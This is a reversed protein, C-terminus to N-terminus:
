KYGRQEKMEIVKRISALEVNSVGLQRIADKFKSEYYPTFSMQGKELKAITSHDVRMFEAFQHLNKNRSHRVPKIFRYDYEQNYPLRSNVTCM